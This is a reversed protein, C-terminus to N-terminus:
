NWSSVMNVLFTLKATWFFKASVVPPVWITPPVGMKTVITGFIKESAVETIAVFTADFNFKVVHKIVVDAVELVEGEIIKYNVLAIKLTLIQTIRRLPLIRLSALLLHDQALLDSIM